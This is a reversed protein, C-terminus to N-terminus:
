SVSSETGREGTKNLMSANTDERRSREVKPARARRTTRKDEASGDELMKMLPSEFTDEIWLKLLTSEEDSEGLEFGLSFCM